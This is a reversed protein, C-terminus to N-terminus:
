VQKADALWPLLSVTFDKSHYCYVSKRNPALDIVDGMLVPDLFFGTYGTNGRM